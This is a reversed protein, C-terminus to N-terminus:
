KSKAAPASKVPAVRPDSDHIQHGAAEFYAVHEPDIVEFVTGNHASTFWAM